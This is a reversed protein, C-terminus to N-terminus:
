ARLRGTARDVLWTASVNIVVLLVVLVLASAHANPEGGPVNM